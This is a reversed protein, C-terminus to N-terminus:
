PNLIVDHPGSINCVSIQSVEVHRSRLYLACVMAVTLKGHRKVCVAVANALITINDAIDDTNQKM